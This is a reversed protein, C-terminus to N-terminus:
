AGGEDPDAAGYRRARWWAVLLAVAVVLETMHLAVGAAFQGIETFGNIGYAVGLPVGGAVGVQLARREFLGVALVIAMAVLAIGGELYLHHSHAEGLGRAIWEGRFIDGLGQFLFLAGLLAAVAQVPRWRLAEERDLARALRRALGAPPVPRAAAAMWLVTVDTDRPPRGALVSTITEDLRDAALQDAPTAPDDAM